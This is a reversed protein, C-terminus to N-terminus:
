RQRLAGEIKGSDQIKVWQKLCGTPKPGLNQPVSPLGVTHVLVSWATRPQGVRYYGIEHWLLEFPWLFCAGARWRPHLLRHCIYPSLVTNGEM